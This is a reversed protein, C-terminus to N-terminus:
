SELDSQDSGTPQQAAFQNQAHNGQHIRYTYKRVVSYASSVRGLMVHRLAPVLKEDIDTIIDSSKDDIREHIRSERQNRLTCTLPAGHSTFYSYVSRRTMQDIVPKVMMQM